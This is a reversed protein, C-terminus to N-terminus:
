RTVRRWVGGLLEGVIAGAVDCTLDKLGFGYGPKGAYETGRTGEEEGVEFVAGAAAVLAVRQWARKPWGVAQAAVSIAAGAAAHQRSDKCTWCTDPDFRFGQGHVPAVFLALTVAFPVVARNRAMRSVAGHAGIARLRSGCGTPRTRRLRARM